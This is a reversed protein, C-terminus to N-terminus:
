GNRIEEVEAIPDEIIALRGKRSRIRDLAESLKENKLPVFDSVRFTKMEWRGNENRFWRGTGSVRIPCKLYYPGLKIAIERRAECMHITDNEEQLHVPVSDGLGGIRILLGELTGEQNFPGYALQAIQKHGPFKLIRANAPSVEEPLILEASANDEKLKENIAVFAKQALEPADKARVQDIRKLVKPHAEYEVNKVIAMSGPEIKVFHVQSQSGLMEAIDSMYQALRSMPISDPRFADIRFKYQYPKLM